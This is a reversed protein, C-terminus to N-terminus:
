REGGSYVACRGGGVCCQSKFLTVLSLCSVSLMSAAVDVISVSLDSGRLGEIFCFLNEVRVVAASSSGYQPVNGL